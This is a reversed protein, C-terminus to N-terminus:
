KLLFSKKISLFAFSFPLSPPLTFLLCLYTFNSETWPQPRALLYSVQDVPLESSTHRPSMSLECISFPNILRQDSGWRMQLINPREPGGGSFSHRRDRLYQWSWHLVSVDGFQRHQGRFTWYSLWTFVNVGHTGLSLVIHHAFGIGKNGNILHPFFSGSPQFLWSMTRGLAEAVHCTGSREGCITEWLSTVHRVSWCWVM